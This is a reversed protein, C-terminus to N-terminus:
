ERVGWWAPGVNGSLPGAAVLTGGAAIALPLQPLSRAAPGFFPKAGRAGAFTSFDRPGGLAHRVSTPESLPYRFASLWALLSRM